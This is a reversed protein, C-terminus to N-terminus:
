AFEQDDPQVEGVRNGSVQTETSAESAAEHVVTGAVVPGAFIDADYGLGQAASIRSVLDDVTAPAAEVKVESQTPAEAGHLRGMSNLIRLAQAQNELKEAHMKDTAEDWVAELLGLYKESLFNRVYVRLSPQNKVYRATERTLMRDVEAETAGIATGIAALSYGAIHLNVIQALMAAQAQAATQAAALEKEAAQKEALAEARRQAAASRKLPRAKKEGASPAVADLLDDPLDDDDDWDPQASM